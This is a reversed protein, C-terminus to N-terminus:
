VRPGADGLDHIRLINRHSIKSALLLEQRFRDMAGAYVMLEPKVLKLAVQRGLDQDYALYVAGMGGQGLLREVRYRPGFDVAGDNSNTQPASSRFPPPSTVADSSSGAASPRSAATAVTVDNETASGASLAVPEVDGVLTADLDPRQLSSNCTACHKAEDPSPIGCKPCNM